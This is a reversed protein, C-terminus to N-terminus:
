SSEKECRRSTKRFLDCRLAQTFEAGVPRFFPPSPLASFPLNTALHAFVGAREGGGRGEIDPRVCNGSTGSNDSNYSTGSTDSPYIDLTFVIPSGRCHCGAFSALNLGVHHLRPGTLLRDAAGQFGLGAIQHDGCDARRDRRGGNPTCTMYSQLVTANPSAVPRERLVKAPAVYAVIHHSM